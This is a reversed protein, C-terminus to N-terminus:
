PPFAEFVTDNKVLFRLLDQGWAISGGQKRGSRDLLPPPDIPQIDGSERIRWLNSRIQTAVGAISGLQPWGARRRKDSLRPDAM